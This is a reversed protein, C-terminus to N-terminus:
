SRETIFKRRHFFFGVPTQLSTSDRGWHLPDPVTIGPGRIRIKEMIGTGPDFFDADAGFFKLMKLGFFPGPHEDRIRIKNKKGM